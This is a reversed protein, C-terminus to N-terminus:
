QEIIVIGLGLVSDVAITILSDLLKKIDNGEYIVCNVLANKNDCELPYVFPFLLLIIIIITYFMYVIFKAV